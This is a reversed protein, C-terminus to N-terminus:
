LGNWRDALWTPEVRRIYRSDFPTKDSRSRGRQDLDADATAQTIATAKEPRRTEM